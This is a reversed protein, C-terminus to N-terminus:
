GGGAIRQKLELMYEEDALTLDLPRWDGVDKDKYLDGLKQDRLEKSKFIWGLEPPSYNGYVIAYVTDTESAAIREDMRAVM